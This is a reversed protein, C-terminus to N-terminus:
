FSSCTLTSWSTASVVLRPALFLLRSASLSLLSYPRRFPYSAQADNDPSSIPEHTAGVSKRIAFPMEM